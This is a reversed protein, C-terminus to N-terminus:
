SQGCKEKTSMVTQVYFKTLVLLFCFTVEPIIERTIVNILVSQNEFYKYFRENVCEVELITIVYTIECNIFNYSRNYRKVFKFKGRMVRLIIFYFVKGKSSVGSVIKTSTYFFLLRFISIHSKEQSKPLYGLKSYLPM